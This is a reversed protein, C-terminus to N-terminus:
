VTQPLGAAQERREANHLDHHEQRSLVQLNERRNDRWAARFPELHRPCWHTRPEFTPGQAEPLPSKM